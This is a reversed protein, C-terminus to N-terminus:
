VKALISFNVFIIEYWTIGSWTYRNVFLYLFAMVLILIGGSFRYTRNKLSDLTAFLFVPLSLTNICYCVALPAQLFQLLRRFFCRSSTSLHKPTIQLKTLIKNIHHWRQKSIGNLILELISLWPIQNSMCRM